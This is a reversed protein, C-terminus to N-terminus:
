YKSIYEATNQLQKLYNFNYNNRRCQMENMLKAQMIYCLMILDLM